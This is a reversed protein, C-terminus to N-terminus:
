TRSISPTRSATRCGSSLAPRTPCRTSALGPRDHDRPQSRDAHQRAGGRGGRRAPRRARPQRPDDAARPALARGPAPELGRVRLGRDCADDRGHRHGRGREAAADANYRSRPDRAAPLAPLGRDRAQGEPRSGQDRGGDVGRQRHRRHDPHVGASRHRAAPGHRRGRAAHPLLGGARARRRRPHLGRGRGQRHGDGIRRRGGPVLRRRGGERRHRVRRRRADLLGAPGQRLRGGGRARRGRRGGRGARRPGHRPDGRGHRRLRAARGGEPVRLRDLELLDRGSIVRTTGAYQYFDKFGRLPLPDLAFGAEM